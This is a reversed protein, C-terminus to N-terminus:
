DLDEPHNFNKFQPLLMDMVELCDAKIVDSVIHHMSQNQLSKTQHGNWLRSLAEASYIGCLPQLHAPTQNVLVKPTHTLRQFHSIWLQFTDAALLPMDCPVFLIDHTPCRLHASLMGRLPGNIHQSSAHDVILCTPAFIRQYDSTQEQSISLYVQLGVKELQLKLKHAWSSGGYSILGKDQGMRSSKGGCLVVAIM